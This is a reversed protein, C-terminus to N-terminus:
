LRLHLRTLLQVILKANQESLLFIKLLLRVFHLQKHNLKFKNQEIHEVHQHKRQIFYLYKRNELHQVSVESFPHLESKFQYQPKEILSSISFSNSDPM